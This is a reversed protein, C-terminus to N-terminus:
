NQWTIQFGPITGEVSELKKVPAHKDCISVFKMSFNDWATDGDPILNVQKSMLSDLIYKLFIVPNPKPGEQIELVLFHVTIVSMM